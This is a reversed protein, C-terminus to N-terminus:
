SKKRKKENILIENIFTTMRRSTVKNKQGITGHVLVWPGSVNNLEEQKLYSSIDPPNKQTLWKKLDRPGTLLNTSVPLDSENAQMEPFSPDIDMAGGAREESRWSQDLRKRDLLLGLLEYYAIWSYKKGYRDVKGPYDSGRDIRSRSVIEKDIDGFKELSYGLQYIRWWIRERVSIFEKNESDYNRRNPVLGGLVYNDFDMGLPANGDRYKGKNKDQEHGWRRIGGSMYPPRVFRLQNVSLLKNNKMLAIEIIGRAYERALVHTTGLKAKESFFLNYIKKAFACLDENSTQKFDSHIAMAVGYGAALVGEVVYPDNADMLGSLAEFCQKPHIRGVKYMCRIARTRLLRVNTTTVWGLITAVCLAQRPKMEGISQTEIWKVLRYVSGSGTQDRLYESWFLDRGTVFFGALHNNLKGASFPHFSKTATSVFLDLLEKRSDEYRLLVKNIYDILSKKIQGDENLFNKPHKWHLSGIFASRVERLRRIEIPMYEILAKNHLRKNNKVREPFEVMLAEVIDINDVVSEKDAFLNGLPNQASLSKRVRNRDFYKQLLYRAIIHDSFKHFPFKYVDIYEKGDKDWALDNILIGEHILIKLIKELTTKSYQDETLSRIVDIVDEHFVYPHGHDAMKRAVGKILCNDGTKNWIWSKRVLSRYRRAYKQVVQEEKTIYFDELIKTMGSQGLALDKLQKAVRPKGGKIDRATKCFCSLFM